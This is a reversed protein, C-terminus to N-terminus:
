VRRRSLTTRTRIPLYIFTGGRPHVLLFSTLATRHDRPVSRRENVRQNSLDGEYIRNIESSRRKLLAVVVDVDTLSSSVGRNIAISGDFTLRRMEIDISHAARARVRSDLRANARSTRTVRSRRRTLPSPICNESEEVVADGRPM